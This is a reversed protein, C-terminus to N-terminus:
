AASTAGEHPTGTGNDIEERERKEARKLKYEMVGVPVVAGLFMAYCMVLAVKGSSTGAKLITRCLEPDTVLAEQANERFAPRAEDIAEATVELGSMKLGVAILGNLQSLAYAAQAALEENKGLRNTRLGSKSSGGKKHEDCKTPHRGRGSYKLEKGCVECSYEYRTPPAEDPVGTPIEADTFVPVDLTM